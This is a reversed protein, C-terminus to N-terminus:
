ADRGSIVFGEMLFTPSAYASRFVLDNGVLSIGPLLDRLNGSLTVEHVPFAFEGGEFWWGNAGRSYDGTVLNVGFGILHTVYLGRGASRLIDGPESDGAALHLASAGPSPPDAYGRQASGTSRAGARRATRTDYLFMTLVGREILTLRETPLGEGDFPRSGPGRPVHPDEILTVCTSAIRRGLDDKLFSIGRRAADGLLAPVLGGWFRAGEVPDFVVPARCKAVTRAGLMRLAREAARRGVEEPTELNSFFRRGDHWVQRQRENGEVAVPACALGCRTGSYAAEIGRTSAIAVDGRGRAFTSGEGPTMRPDSALAASEVRSALEVGQEFSIAELEPDVLDLTPFIAGQTEPLCGDPDEPAREAIALATEVLSELGRTTLDTTAAFGNRQGREVRLGCGASRSETTREVLGNVIKIELQESRSLYAEAADAGAKSARRAVLRARELLDPATM